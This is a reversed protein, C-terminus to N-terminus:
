YGDPLKRNAEDLSQKLAEILDEQSPLPEDCPAVYGPRTLEPPYPLKIYGVPVRRINCGAKWARFEEQQTPHTRRYELLRRYDRVEKDCHQNRLWKSQGSICCPLSTPDMTREHCFHISKGDDHPRTAYLQRVKENFSELVNAKHDKRAKFKQGVSLENTKGELRKDCRPCYEKCKPEAMDFQPPPTRARKLPNVRVAPRYDLHSTGVQVAKSVTKTMSGPSSEGDGRKVARWSSPGYRVDVQSYPEGNSAIGDLICQVGVTHYTVFKDQCYFNSVNSMPDCIDSAGLIRASVEPDIKVTANAVVEGGERKGVNAVQDDVAPPEMTEGDGPGECNGVNAMPDDLASPKKTEGDGLVPKEVAVSDVREDQIVPGSSEVVPCQELHEHNGPSGNVEPKDSM